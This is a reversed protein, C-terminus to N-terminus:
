LLGAIDTASSKVDVRSRDPRNVTTRLGVAAQRATERRVLLRASRDFDGLKRVELRVVANVQPLREQNHSTGDVQAHPVLRQQVFHFYRARHYEITTGWTDQCKGFPGIRLVEDCLVTSRQHHEILQFFGVALRALRFSFGESRVAGVDLPDLLELDAREALDGVDPDLVARGLDAAFVNVAADGNLGIYSPSVQGAKDGVNM